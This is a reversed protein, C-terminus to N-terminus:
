GTSKKGLILEQKALGHMRERYACIMKKAHLSSHWQNYKKLAEEVLEEAQLAATQREHRNATLAHLSDIDWLHVNELEGVEPAIDHFPHFRFFSVSAVLRM